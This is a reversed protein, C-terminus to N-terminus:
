FKVSLKEDELSEYYKQNIDVEMVSNVHFTLIQFSNYNLKKTDTDMVHQVHESIQILVLILLM